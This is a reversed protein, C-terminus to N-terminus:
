SQKPGAPPPQRRGRLWGSATTWWSPRRLGELLLKIADPEGVLLPASWKQLPGLADPGEVAPFLEMPCWQRAGRAASGGGAQPMTIASRGSERVLVLGAAVDWARPSRFYAYQFVGCAVYAMEAAISGLTRAEGALGDPSRLASRRVRLPVVALRSGDPPPAQTLPQGDVRVGGGERAHYVAPVGRHGVSAYIAGAVPKGRRLVGVSVAFFPLGNIFNATGDLPDLVWVFAGPRQTPTQEEGVVSHGPFRAAIGQRLHEEAMRDLETVPDRKGKEKFDVATPQGFRDMLMRGAEGALRAAVSEIDTLLPEDTIPGAM